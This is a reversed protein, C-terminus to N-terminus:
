TIKILESHLYKKHIKIKSIIKKIMVLFKVLEDKTFKMSTFNQIATAYGDIVVPSICRKTPDSHAYITNRLDLIKIHLIKQEPTFESIFKNSLISRNRSKTFPRSYATALGTTFASQQMYISRCKEFPEFHWGKNIIYEAFFNAQRLDEEAIHLLTYYKKNSTDLSESSIM